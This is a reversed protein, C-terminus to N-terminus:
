EVAISHDVAAPQRPRRLLVLLPIAALSLLMLLKFDDIYAIITAQNTVLEDLAARGPLTLPSYAQMDPQQLLRNFPTIHSVLEAHNIQTNESILATVASIGVASGINRSLNYLGTGEGRQHAPLTSFTVTTLPVFLFGLGAGQVFGTVIIRWQSVDPTWATMDYMAWATLLLGTALLLRTDVKGILRGVIFMCLMTGMGRPGMVIGATVVPYGMLTQLYPTMLALSALYTIGVVFIFIMGLSFNRDLFLRPNVFSREATFTHVLFIYFASAAVVAEILIEGSGFWGLQEGRDLMLQLSAIAISLAGFGTWDLRASREIRTEQVFASVGLFALVGLPVNIYFVWRWSLNDTLWGGLVPGLVPGVMVSVGFLAMASGREELTYIDLLIAQSLPVLAAGFFGQLLRFAVIQALSQALGCLVSAVVFGAIATLLVRKRGFRASLWGSPPTMIAAAVIYSTLVWNVQDASASVSGQIYPLAVNAITTDLAQMIVALIVCATIAGRNAVPM